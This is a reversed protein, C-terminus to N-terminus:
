ITTLTVVAPRFIPTYVPVTFILRLLPRDSLIGPVSDMVADGEVGGGGGGGGDDGGGGGGDDLPYENLPGDLTAGPCGKVIFHVAGLPCEAKSQSM